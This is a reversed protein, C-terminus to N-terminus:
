SKKEMKINLVHIMVLRVKILIRETIIENLEIENLTIQWNESHMEVRGNDRQSSEAWSLPIHSTIPNLFTHITQYSKTFTSIGDTKGKDQKM